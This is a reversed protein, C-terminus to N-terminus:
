LNNMRRVKEAAEVAEAIMKRTWTHM